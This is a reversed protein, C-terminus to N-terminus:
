RDRRLEEALTERLRHIRQRLTESTLGLTESIERRSLREIFLLRAVVALSPPLSQIARLLREDAAEQQEALESEEQVSPLREHAIAGADRSRFEERIENLVMKYIVGKLWGRPSSHIAEADNYLTVLADIAISEWDVADLPLGKRRALVRATALACANAFLALPRDGWWGAPLELMQAFAAHREPETAAHDQLIDLAKLSLDLSEPSM